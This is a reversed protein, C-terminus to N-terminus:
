TYEGTGDSPVNAYLTGDIDLAREVFGRLVGAETKRLGKFAPHALPPLRKRQPAIRARRPRM